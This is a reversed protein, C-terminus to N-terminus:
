KTCSKLAILSTTWSKCGTTGLGHVKSVVISTSFQQNETKSKIVKKKKGMKGNCLIVSAIQNQFAPGRFMPLGVTNSLSKLDARGQKLFHQQFGLM